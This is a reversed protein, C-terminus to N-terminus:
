LITCWVAELKLLVQCIKEFEGDGMRGGGEERYETAM